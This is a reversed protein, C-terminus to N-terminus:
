NSKSGQAALPAGGQAEPAPEGRGPRGVISWAYRGFLTTLLDNGRANVLRVMMLGTAVVMGPVFVGMHVWCTLTGETRLVTYLADLGIYLLVVWFGRIAFIKYSLRFGVRYWTLIHVKHLPFFVFYMGALGMVAGSAGFMSHFFENTNAAMQFLAAFVALLPYALVMLINGILANVRSGFVLLFVMDGVLHFPDANLLAHTVLQYPHYTHRGIEVPALRGPTMEPTVPQDPIQSRDLQGGWLMLEQWADFSVSHTYFLV